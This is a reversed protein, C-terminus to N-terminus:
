TLCPWRGEWAPPVRVTLRRTAPGAEALTIWLMDPWAREGMRDAWEILLLHDARAEDLGLEDLEGADELRYLDIHLVPMRTEPPAYPQVIAFTPSPAEGALGLSRLIARALSTKGAGLPGSLAVADGPRLCAAIQAGVRDIDDLRYDM